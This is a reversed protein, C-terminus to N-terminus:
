GKFGVHSADVAASHFHMLVEFFPCTSFVLLQLRVRAGHRHELNCMIVRSAFSLLMYPQAEAGMTTSQATSLVM